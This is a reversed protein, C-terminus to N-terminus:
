DEEDEEDTDANDTDESLAEENLEELVDCIGVVCEMIQEDSLNEDLESECMPCSFAEETETDESIVDQSDENGFMNSEDVKEAGEAPQDELIVGPKGIQSWAANELLEQVLADEVSIHNM